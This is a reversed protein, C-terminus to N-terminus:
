QTRKACKRTKLSLIKMGTGGTLLGTTLIMAIESAGTPPPTVSLIPLCVQDQDWDWKDNEGRGNAIATDCTNDITAIATFTLHLVVRDGPTLEGFLNQLNQYVLVGNEPSSIPVDKGTISRTGDSEIKDGKASVFRLKTYDYLDNFHYEVIKVNGANRITVDFYVNNSIYVSSKNTLVKEVELDVTGEEGGCPVEFSFWHQKNVTSPYDTASPWKCWEYGNTSFSTCGENTPWARSDIKSTNTPRYGYQYPDQVRIAFGEHPSIINVLARFEAYDGSIGAPDTYIIEPDAKNEDTTLHVLEIPINYVKNPDSGGVCRISGYIWRYETPQTQIVLTKGCSDNPCSAGPISEYTDGHPKWVDFDPAIKTCLRGDDDNVDGNNPTTIWGTAAAIFYSGPTNPATFRVTTGYAWDGREYPGEIVHWNGSPDLYTFRAVNPADGWGGATGTVSLELEDGPQAYCVDEGCRLGNNINSIIFSTCSPNEIPPQQIVFNKECDSSSIWERNSGPPADTVWAKVKYSGPSTPPNQQLISTSIEFIKDHNPDGVGGKDEDNFYPGSPVSITEFRFYLTNSDDDKAKAYAWTPYGEQTFSSIELSQCVPSSPPPPPTQECFQEYEDSGRPIVFNFGGIDEQPVGECRYHNGEVHCSGFDGTPKYATAPIGGNSTGSLEVTYYSEAQNVTVLIDFVGSNNNKTYTQKEGTAGMTARATLGDHNAPDNQPSFEECALDGALYKQQKWVRNGCATCKEGSPYQHHLLYGCEEQCVPYQDLPICQPTGGNGPCFEIYPKGNVNSEEQCSFGAPFTCGRGCGEFSECSCTQNTERKAQQAEVEEGTHKSNILTAVKEYNWLVSILGAILGVCIVIVGRWFKVPSIIKM